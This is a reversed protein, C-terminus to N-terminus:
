PTSSELRAGIIRLGEFVLLPRMQVPGDLAGKLQPANGGTLLVVPRRAGGLGAALQRVMEKVGGRFSHILGSRIAEQTSRGLARKPPHLSVAPLKATAGLLAALQAELGASIAGGCLRGRADLVTFATATGAAVIIAPWAGEAHVAVAAALRDAGLEAPKPYDFPLGLAPSKGDVV